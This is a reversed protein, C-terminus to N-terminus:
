FPVTATDYPTVDFLTPGTEPTEPTKPAPEGCWDDSDPWTLNTVKMELEMRKRCAALSPFVYRWPRTADTTRPRDKTLGPVLKFLFVGLETKTKPYRDKRAECHDLYSQFTDQLLMAPNTQFPTVRGEELCELWWSHMSDMTQVMIETRAETEIPSRLEDKNVELTMLHHFFAELGGHNLEDWLRGFFVKDDENRTGIDLVTFRRDALTIPVPWGENSTVMLRLCSHVSITDKGKREIEMEENTILDKIENAASKDGGFVAEEAQLLICHQLHGNFQGVLYRSNRAIVRHKGLIRAMVDGMTSKGTGPRGRLVLSTGPKEMPFQVMHALWMMVWRYTKPCGGCVNIRIHEDLTTWVGAGNKPRVMWGRWLNYEDSAVKKGPHFVVQRYSRRKRNKFWLQAISTEKAKGKEDIVEVAQNAYYDLFAQKDWLEFREETSTRIVGSKGGFILFAYERNLSHVAASIEDTARKRREALERAAKEEAKLKEDISRVEPSAPTARQQDGATGAATGM